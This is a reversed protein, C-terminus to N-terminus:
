FLEYGANSRIPVFCGFTLANRLIWPAIILAAVSAPTIVAPLARGRNESGLIPCLVAVGFIPIATVNILALLGGLMGLMLGYRRDSDDCWRLAAWVVAAVALEQWVFYWLETLRM